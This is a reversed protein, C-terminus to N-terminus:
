SPLVTKVKHKVVTSLFANTNFLAVRWLVFIIYPIVLYHIKAYNPQRIYKSSRDFQPGLDIFLLM